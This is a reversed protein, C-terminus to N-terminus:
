RYEQRGDTNGGKLEESKRLRDMPVVIARTNAFFLFLPKQPHLTEDIVVVVVVVVAIVVVVVVVIPESAGLCLSSTTRDSTHGHYKLKSIKYGYSCHAYDIM